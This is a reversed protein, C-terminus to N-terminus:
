VFLFGVLIVFLFVGGIFSVESFVFKDEIQRAFLLKVCLLYTINLSVQLKFIKGRGLSTYGTGRYLELQVFLTEVSIYQNKSM